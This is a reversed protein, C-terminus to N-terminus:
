PPPGTRSPGSKSPPRRVDSRGRSRYCPPERAGGPERRMGPPAARRARSPHPPPWRARGGLGGRGGARHGRAGPPVAGGARAGGQSCARHARADRPGARGRRPWRATDQWAVLADEGAAALAPSFTSSHARGDGDVQQPAEGRSLQTDYLGSPQTNSDAPNVWDTFAVLSRGAPTLAVAPADDLAEVGPPQANVRREPGFSSGGDESARTFVSWDYGRFDVWSLTVRDGRAALSPAWAHDLEEAFPATPGVGDLRAPAGPDAGARLRAGFIGAQPLRDSPSRGREDVWAVLARGPGTAAVAPKHQAAAGAMATPASFTRGGDASSATLVRDAHEWAVWLRGDPGASLAPWWGPGLAVPRGFRRGGDRSAAVFVIDADGRREEWAAWVRRGRAALAVNRQEARGPRLAVARTFRAGRRARPARVRRYPPLEGVRVDAWLVSEAQGGACPGPRRAAPCPPGGPLLAEGAAGLLRRREPFPGGPEPVVWPAVATFGPAPPQGVLGPGPPGRDVILAQADASFDFVNGVLQPMAMAKLSPHRLVDSPGSGQLTDPNWPGQTSVTSGVFFEPQVLVEVREQDLKRTIDPMWADKSTVIGLRGVPTPIAEVGDVEGPVLDLGGPLEIPTLYAKATQAILRGGPDFVLGLTSPKASTAEYAYTREPEDPSRLLAVRSADQVACPRGGPPPVYTARSECVVQWDQALTVGAVVYADLEDALAAFSEVGVRVFTDTLALALLRTPPFPRAGLEPFKQAYYSSVPAYAALLGAVAETLGGARRAGEARSGSFAAMLGLDEPLTVLDRATEAARAPDEPGLLRSRVDPLGEQVPVGPARRGADALAFLKARFDERTDVWELGFKPSVTFVRVERASALGPALLGLLLALAGLRKV